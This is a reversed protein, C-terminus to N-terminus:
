FYVSSRQNCGAFNSNSELVPFSNRDKAQLLYTVCHQPHVINVMDVIGCLASQAIFEKERDDLNKEGRM